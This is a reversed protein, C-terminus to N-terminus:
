AARPRARRRRGRRRRRRRRDPRPRSSLTVGRDLVEDAPGPVVVEGTTGDGFESTPLAPASSRTPRSPLSRRSPPGPASTMAPRGRCRCRWRRRGCPRRERHRDVVDGVVARGGLAVVDLGVDLVEDAARRSSESVPLAPGFTIWAPAPLSVMAPPAPSSSSYPSSPLSVKVSPAAALPASSRKPPASMAARREAVEDVVVLAVVLTRTSRSSASRRRRSRRSRCRGHRRRIPEPRSALGVDQDAARSRILEEAEACGVGEVAPEAGVHERSAARDIRRGVRRAGSRELDRQVADGVVALDRRVLEVVDELVDLVDGAAAAVVGEEAARGGVAEGAAEAVVEEVAGGSGVDELAAAVEVRDVVRAPAGPDGDRDVSRRVVARVRVGVPDTLLAVVDCASTSVRTPPEPSSRSTPLSSGTKM